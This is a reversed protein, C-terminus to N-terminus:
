PLEVKHRVMVSGLKWGAVGFATFMAAFMVCWAPVFFFNLNFGPNVYSNSPDQREYLVTWRAGKAADVKSQWSRCDSSSSSEKQESTYPRGEVSYQVRYAASCLTVGEDNQSQVLRSEIVTAEATPWRHLIYYQRLFVAFGVVVALASLICFTKGVPELWEVAGEPFIRM